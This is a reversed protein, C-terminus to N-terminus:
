AVETVSSSSEPIQLHLGLLIFEYNVREPHGLSWPQFIGPNLNILQYPKYLNQQLYLAKHSNGALM